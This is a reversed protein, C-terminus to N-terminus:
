ITNMPVGLADIRDLARELQLYGRSLSFVGHAPLLMDPHLQALRRCTAISQQLDCDWINQLTIKGGYFISDGSFLVTQGGIQVQYCAHGACHGETLLATVTLNGVRLTQNNNLATVPCATFQFDPPYSGSKMAPAISLANLDGYSVFDATQQMAYVQAGCERALEAAGGAHDGHGHTLYIADIQQPDFGDARINHLIQQCDVGAGADILVRQTGGDLLYVTCDLPHSIGVGADGSGVLYIRDHIRM